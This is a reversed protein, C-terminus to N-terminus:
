RPPRCCGKASALRDIRAALVAQVTDPGGPAGGACADTRRRARDRWLRVVEESSRIGATRPSQAALRCVRTTGLLDRFAQDGRGWRCCPLQQYYSQQM